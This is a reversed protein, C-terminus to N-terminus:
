AAYPEFFQQTFHHVIKEIGETEYIGAKFDSFFFSNADALFFSKAIFNESNAEATVNKYSLQLAKDQIASLYLQTDKLDIDPFLAKLRNLSNPFRFFVRNDELFIFLIGINVQEDLVSSPRFKLLSYKFIKNM